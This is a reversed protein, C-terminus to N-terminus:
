WGLPKPITTGDRTVLPNSFQCRRYHSASAKFSGTAVSRLEDSTRAFPFVVFTQKMPFLRTASRVASALDSDGTVLVAADCANRMYLEFLRAAISVDTEKEEFVRTTAGCCACRFRKQKFHGLTIVVGSAALAAMYTRHRATTGPREFERHRALASFYAVEGLVADRGLHELFSRAFASLDLWRLGVGPARREAERLSHYLNYGDVLFATRKM